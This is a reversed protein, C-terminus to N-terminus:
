VPRSPLSRLCGSRHRVQRCLKKGMFIRFVSMSKSRGGGGRERRGGCAGGGSEDPLLSFGISRVGFAPDPDDLTLFVTNAVARTGLGLTVLGHRFAVWFTRARPRNGSIGEATPTGPRSAAAGEGAGEVDGVAGVGEVRLSPGDARCDRGDLPGGAGKKATGTRAISAVLSVPDIRIEYEIGAGGRGGGQRGGSNRFYAHEADAYSWGSGGEASRGEEMVGAAAARERDAKRAADM